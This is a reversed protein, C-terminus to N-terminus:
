KLHELNYEKTVKKSQEIVKASPNYKYCSEGQNRNLQFAMISSLTGDLSLSARQATLNKRVQSFLSEEEANSHVISLVIRVLKFLNSFKSCNTGAIKMEHLHFWLVDIRYVVNRGEDDVRIAAEDKMADCFDELSISQLYIFEQQLENIEEKTFTVYSKFCDVLFMVSEFSCKQDFINIVRAHKLLLNFLPFNKVAYVFAAKHFEMCAKYFKEKQTNSIDGDEYLKEVNSRAPFGIFVKNASLYNESDEVVHLLEDKSLEGNRFKKVVDPVVFRSLLQAATDHLLDHLVHILPDARQLSLNLHILSPLAGDLFMCYVETMPNTFADIVRNIRSKSREGDTREENESLFYSKLSPFLKLTREICTSLGLWRVSHFKLIKFYKQDCFDCFEVLLNKRKSSYDFHFYIDVLLQEIDFNNVIKEFATTAKKAANHAIHCPCGMLFINNNRKRTEVILSNHRGVNVSTNDVGLSVCNEWPIDYKQFVNNISTFIGVATSVKSLCMDLFKTVVKHQNIDFLRVTVPNM